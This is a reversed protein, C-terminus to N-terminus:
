CINISYKRNQVKIFSIKIKELEKLNGLCIIKLSVVVTLLVAIEILIIELM